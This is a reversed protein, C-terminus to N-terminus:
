GTQASVKIKALQFLCESYREMKYLSKAKLYGLLFLGTQNLNGFEDFNQEYKVPNSMNLDEITM